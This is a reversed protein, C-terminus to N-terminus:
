KPAEGADGKGGGGDESGDGSTDSEMGKTADNLVEAMRKGSKPGPARFSQNGDTVQTGFVTTVAQWHGGARAHAVTALLGALLVTIATAHRM